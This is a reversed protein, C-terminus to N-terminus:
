ASWEFQSRASDAQPGLGVFAGRVSPIGVKSFLLFAILSDSLRRANKFFPTRAAPAAITPAPESPFLRDPTVVAASSLSERPVDVMEPSPRAVCVTAIFGMDRGSSGGFGDFSTAAFSKGPKTCVSTRVLQAVM